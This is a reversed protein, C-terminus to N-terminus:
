PVTVVRRGAARKAAVRSGALVLGVGVAAIAVNVLGYGLLDSGEYEAPLTTPAAGFAHESGSLWELLLNLTQFSFLMADLALYLCVAVGRQKVFFGLPFAILVTFILCM